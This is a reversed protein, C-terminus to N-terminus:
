CRGTRWCSRSPTTSASPGRRRAARGRAARRAGCSPTTPSAPSGAPDFITTGASSYNREGDVTEDGGALLIEGTTPLLTQASCFLDTGTTNPLVFHSDPGTARSPDWIDYVFLGTQQGQEDTGYSLVRGDPMLMAHLPILPWGIIPGFAGRLHAKPGGVIPEATAERSTALGTAAVTLLLATLRALNQRARM